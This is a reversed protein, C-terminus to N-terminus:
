KPVFKKIVMNLAETSFRKVSLFNLYRKVKKIRKRFLNATKEKGINSYYGSLQEFTNIKSKLKPAIKMETWIGGNHVRYLAPKINNLYKGPGIQGLLSYLFVDLALVNIIENPIIKKVRSKFFVTLTAPHIFSLVLDAASLDSRLPSAKDSDLIEGVSNIIHYDHYCISYMPNSEMFNYQKQLKLPDNWSDDGECIALYKGKASFINYLVTFNASPIEQVKINNKRSHLFLRILQPYKQAYKLCLERTGDTSDDDALLIEIPFDTVQNLISDLCNKIFNEHQYTQVLVSVAPFQPAHHPYHKVEEKQFKTKFEAFTM